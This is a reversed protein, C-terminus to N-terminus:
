SMRQAAVLGAPLFAAIGPDELWVHGIRLVFRRPGAGATFGLRAEDKETLVLIADSETAAQAEAELLERAIARHDRLWCHAIVDLGYDRASRLFREPRAIGALLRAKKGRAEERTWVHDSVVDVLGTVESRLAYCRLKPFRRRLEAMRARWADPEVAECGTLVCVDARGLASAPERAWGAPLLAGGFPQQADVLCVDLDRHLMRHQFGDDLLVVDVAKKELLRLGAEYRNPDQVQALGPFRRRLLEGEDNLEAGAARGYGRALVGVELGLAQMGEVLLAVFPTKGSGGVTLNGISVVPVPLRRVRRLGRDFLGNRLAVGARYVWSLPLLFPEPELAKSTMLVRSRSPTSRSM